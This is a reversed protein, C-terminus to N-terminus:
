RKANREKQIALNAKEEAERLATNIDKKNVAVEKAADNLFPDAIAKWISYDPLPSPSTKFIAQLNKGAFVNADVAFSMKIKPDQLPSLRGNKSLATQAEESLMTLLVRYAAEKHKTSKSVTLMHFDVPNGLNPREKFTPYGALDWEFKPKSKVVSSSISAIWDTKMALTGGNLNIPLYTNGVVLGPITFFQQLLSFVAKHRDTTFVAKEDKADINSAGYQRILNLVNNPTGGIYQVGGDMRTLRRSLDLYEEWTVTDKPYPIGFKDFLDKNYMLAGHNMGFPLGYMAGNRSVTQIVEVIAPEIRSVDVNFRRIMPNLDEPYGIEIYAGLQTNSVAVLDPTTGSALLKEISTEKTLKMTIDPNKAKVPQAFYQQFEEETIGTNRDQVLLEVPGGTYADTAKPSPRDIEAGGPSNASCGYLLAIAAFVAMSVCTRKYSM